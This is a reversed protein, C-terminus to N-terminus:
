VFCIYLLIYHLRNKNKQMIKHLKNDIIKNITFEIIERKWMPLNNRTKLMFRM